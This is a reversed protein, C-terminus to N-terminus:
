PNVMYRDIIKIVSRFNEAYRSRGGRRSQTIVMDHEPIVWFVSATASGHGLIKDSLAFRQEGTEEDTIRQEGQVMYVIGIGWPKDANWANSWQLEPYYTKLDSPIILNYTEPSFFRLNGYSGKNLLMQAIKAMDYATSQCSFGLDRDLHTNELELPGFIHEEFLRFVSKGTVVEMVKGALDYGMGNYIHRTGVTDGKIVELLSNELWPNHVGGYLGHGNFGSTHTFCQRLTVAEPGETPFEPLYLGVPDDIGIIGQDVFQAFLLGTMLKTISAVESPTATTFPGFEDKGFSNHYIIKGGKAILMDFPAGKDAIWAECAQDLEDRFQKHKRADMWSLRQLVPATDSVEQPVQPATYKDEVGLIKQKLKAHFDGEQIIPTEIKGPPTKLWEMNELFALLKVHAEQDMTSSRTSAGIHSKIAARHRDWTKRSIDNIPIYSLDGEMRENWIRRNSISFVSGSRKLTKGNTGEIEAYYAYRGPEAPYIVENLERDFWRTRIQYEGGLYDRFLGPKEPVLEPFSGPAFVYGMGGGMIKPVLGLSLVQRSEYAKDSISLRTKGAEPELIKLSLNWGWDKNVVKIVVDNTGQNLPVHFYKSSHSSFYSYVNEGNIFTKAGDQTKLIFLASTQSASEIQFHTYAAAGASDGVLKNFDITNRDGVEVVLANPPKNRTGFFKENTIFEKELLGAFDGNQIAEDHYPGAVLFEQVYSNSNLQHIVQGQLSVTLLLLFLLIQKRLCRM